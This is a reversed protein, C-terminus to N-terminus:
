IQFTCLSARSYHNQRANRRDIHLQSYPASPTVVDIREGPEIAYTSFQATASQATAPASPQSSQQCCASGSVNRGSEGAARDHMAMMPCNSGCHMAGQEGFQCPLAASATGVAFVLLLIVAVIKFTSKMGAYESYKGQETRATIQIVQRRM